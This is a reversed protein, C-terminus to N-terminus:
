KFASVNKSNTHRAHQALVKRLKYVEMDEDEGKETDITDEVEQHKAVESTSDPTLASATSPNLHWIDGVWDLISILELVQSYNYFQDKEHPYVPDWLYSKM